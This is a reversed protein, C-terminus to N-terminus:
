DEHNVTGPVRDMGGLVRQKIALGGEFCVACCLACVLITLERTSRVYLAAALFFILGRFMKTLEFEGYVKPWSISVSFCAYAFLVLMLGFSAPWFFRPNGRRPTLISGCLVSLALLDLLLVELGRSSGRYWFHSLFTIDMRDTVVACAVMLFFAIDRALKSFTGIALCVPIALLLFALAIFHNADMPM